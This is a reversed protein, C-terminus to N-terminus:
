KFCAESVSAFFIVQFVSCFWQLGLCCESLVGDVYTYFMHLMLIFVSAVYTRFCLHFMPLRKYCVHIVMAVYAVDRDVKVVYRQFMQFVQFTRKCCANKV